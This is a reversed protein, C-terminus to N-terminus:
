CIQMILISDFLFKFSNLIRVIHQRNPKSELNFFFYSHLPLQSCNAVNWNECAKMLTLFQSEPFLLGLIRMSTLYKGKGPFPPMPLLAPAVSVWGMSSIWWPEWSFNLLYCQQLWINLVYWQCFVTSTSKTKRFLTLFVKELIHLGKWNSAM